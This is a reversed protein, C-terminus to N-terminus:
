RHRRALVEETSDGGRATKRRPVALVNGVAGAEEYKDLNAGLPLGALPKGYLV